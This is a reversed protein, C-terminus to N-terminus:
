ILFKRKARRCEERCRKVSRTDNIKDINQGFEGIYKRSAREASSKMNEKQRFKLPFTPGNTFLSESHAAFFKMIVTSLDALDKDFERWM